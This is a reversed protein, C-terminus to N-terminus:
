ICKKHHRSKRSSAVDILFCGIPEAEANGKVILLIRQRPSGDSLWTLCM